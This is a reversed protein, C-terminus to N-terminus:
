SDLVKLTDTQLEVRLQAACGIRDLDPQQADLAVLAGFRLIIILAALQDAGM